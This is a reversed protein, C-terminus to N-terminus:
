NSSFFSKAKPIYAKIDKIRTDDSPHTSMWEMPKQGKSASKMREWFTIAEEPNYGAMAMFVLGMKDAESEQNRSFKLAGLSSAVNYSQLFVNQTQTPNKQMASGLVGGGLQIALQTSMRENGHQAIAHAIEHSMVVALGEETQAVPIIGTYVAVKGGPMCWANVENSAVLNFEWQFGKVRSAAKHTKCYREAANAIRQGVNNVMTAEKTNKIAPNAALFKAYEVKSMSSMEAEPLLSMQRRNSIPVKSCAILLAIVCATTTIKKM